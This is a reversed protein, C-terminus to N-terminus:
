KGKSQEPKEATFHVIETDKVWKRTFHYAYHYSTEVIDYISRTGDPNLTFAILRVQFPVPM